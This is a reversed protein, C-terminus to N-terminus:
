VAYFCNLNAVFDGCIDLIQIQVSLMVCGSEGWSLMCYFEIMQMEVYTTIDWPGSAHIKNIAEAYSELVIGNRRTHTCVVAQINEM